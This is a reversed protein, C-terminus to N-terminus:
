IVILFLFCYTISGSWVVYFSVLFLDNLALSPVHREIIKIHFSICIKKILMANSIWCISTLDIFLCVLRKKIIWQLQINYFLCRLYWLCIWIRYNFFVSVIAHCFVFFPLCIFLLRGVVVELVLSQAVCVGSCVPTNPLAGSPVTTGAGLAACTTFTTFSSINLRNDVINFLGGPIIYSM